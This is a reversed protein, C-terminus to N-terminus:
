EICIPQALHLLASVIPFSLFRIYPSVLIKSWDGSDTNRTWVWLMKLMQDPKAWNSKAESVNSKEKKGEEKTNKNKNRKESSNHTNKKWEAGHNKKNAENADTDYVNRTHSFM